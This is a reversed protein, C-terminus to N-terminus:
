SHWAAISTRIPRVAEQMYEDPNSEATRPWRELRSDDPEVVGQFPAQDVVRLGTNATPGYPVGEEASTVGFGAAHLVEGRVVALALGPVRTVVPKTSGRLWRM